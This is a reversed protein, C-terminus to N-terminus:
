LFNQYQEYLAKIRDTLDTERKSDVYSAIMHMLRDKRGVMVVLSKARTVATYLLNRTMLLPPISQMPMVVCPFESGQSKHVTIAYAHVIEEMQPYEYYAERGDDFAILVTRDDTDIEMITGIDGNYVGEGDHGDLQWKMTYNNKIQMVKDGERIIRNGFQKEENENSKPNLVHQLLENLQHTGLPGNKMPTLLQIDKIPNLDYFDPLRKTMLSVIQDQVDKPYNKSIFYFDKDKANLVPEEGSNIKHANVVIMSEEAQRYIETLRVVPIIDTAMLDKLVNGPGVSPLQDCDGVFILRTGAKIANLLHYFLVIDVMSFEDIVIVDMDLPDTDNKQFTLDSAHEDYQYELLRHITKAERQCTESMRKAARGTPAALAIKKKRSEFMRIIANIITTKGTGPGGTIILVGEDFAKKIANRQNDHFDIHYSKEYDDIDYDVSAEVVDEVSELLEIMKMAGHVESYYISPVYYNSVEDKQDAYLEGALIMSKLHMDVDENTVAILKVTEDILVDKRMYTHGNQMHANIAFIVGSSVRFPSAAEIGLEKAIDDAQHFGIGKIENCLDYPNKSVKEITEAGYLQYIRGAYKQSIGLRNLFVMIEKVAFQELISEKIRELKSAGIGPIDLLKEPENQMVDFSEEGFAEVIHRATTPGIGSIYGQALYSYIDSASKPLVHEFRKVDLQEGYVPHEIVFAEIEVHDGENVGPMVGTATYIDDETTFKIVAYHNQDNFFIIEDVTGSLQLMQRAM